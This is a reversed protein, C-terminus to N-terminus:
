RQHPAGVRRRAREREMESSDPAPRIEIPGGQVVPHKSMLAIAEALDRAELLFFGALEEKTEAYPGDTVSVQGDRCRLTTARRASGLGEGGVLHGSERLWEDYAFFADMSAQRDSESMTGWNSPGIYSLCVFRM